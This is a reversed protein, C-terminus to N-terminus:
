KYSSKKWSWAGGKGSQWWDQHAGQQVSEQFEAHTEWRWVDGAPNVVRSVPAQQQSSSAGGTSAVSAADDVQNAVQSGRARQHSASTGGTWAFSEDDLYDRTRLDVLLKMMKHQGGNEVVGIINRQEKNRHNWNFGM